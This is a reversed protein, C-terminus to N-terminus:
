LNPHDISGAWVILQKTSSATTYPTPKGTDPLGRHKWREWLQILAESLAPSANTSRGGNQLSCEAVQHGQDRILQAMQPNDHSTALIPRQMWLYEYLKSPIYEACMADEGHVLALVDCQRMLTLVQDRGSRGTAPDVEIRGFLRIRDWVGLSKAMQVSPEDLSGGYIHVELDQYALPSNSKILALSHIFPLFTRTQSLSGFHGLVMTQKAVYPPTVGHFPNDVGPLMVRGKVGLVPHRQLASAMAQDTFWIAIDASTCICREVKAYAKQRRTKSVAGPPVMPDHIEALWPKGLKSKLTQAAMHAAFPGATSYILDFPKEKALRLGARAASYCWSWSSEVPKVLREVFIFPLLVISALLMLSRYALRSKLRQRLVHRLEFKFGSPGASWVQHHEFRDDLHGTVGSIVVVEVGAELLHPIKDTITHSAARGDMNFPHALILWRRRSSPSALPRVSSNSM